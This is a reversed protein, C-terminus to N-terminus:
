SDNHSVHFHKKINTMMQQSGGLALLEEVSSGSAGGGGDDDSDIGAGHFCHSAGSGPDDGDGDYEIVGFCYQAYSAIFLPPLSVYIM